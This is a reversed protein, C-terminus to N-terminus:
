RCGFICRLFSSSFDLKRAWPPLVPPTPCAPLGWISRIMGRCDQAIKRTAPVAGHVLLGHTLPSTTPGLPPHHTFSSLLVSSFHRGIGHGARSPCVTDAHKRATMPSCRPLEDCAHGSAVSLMCLGLGTSEGLRKCPALGLTPRVMSAIKSPSRSFSTCVRPCLIAMQCRSIQEPVACGGVDVWLGVQFDM